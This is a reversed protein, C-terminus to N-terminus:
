LKTSASQYDQPTRGYVKKFCKIFYSPTNFGIQYAIESITADSAKLLPLALKVRQVRLFETASMKFIAKLKRHLQSRSMHMRKAFLVITFEPNTIEKDLVTKLRTLFETETSTSGLEPDINFDKSFHHQLQNRGEILKEVRLKLLKSNFPKTIYADVGTTLGSIENDAGVKATLLIIPIHSTLENHKLFNSLAIGDQVPMMVDSIILDPSHALALAVGSKGNNAEIIRYDDKFISSIFKRIDDEDEVILLLARDSPALTQHHNIKSEMEIDSVKIDQAAFASEHIPLSVTFQIKDAAITNVIIRGKALEVLEKVLALGVGVGESAQDDQYFRQFLQGIDKKSIDKNTNIISLVMQQHHENADVLITSGKPAYKIANTLLNSTIKEVIDTDYWASTLNNINQTITIKRKEAQYQFAAIIQKLLINLNNKSVELRLQGSDILSLDLMQNVLKLLRNANQKVLNLEHADDPQLNKKALQHEIPGSILTLPTRFEHSINTYLKTKFEDLKKLRETEAHELQLQTQMHWRWKFYVYIIYITAIILILYIAKALNTLYWPRLISFSYTAPVPNWVGDYNSSIVKFVYDNPPLNTYHATNTNGSSVWTSDHNVLQYKYQNRDPQSFHLGSFTFTLTNQTHSFRAQQEIPKEKNFIELKSIVTRPVIRNRTIDSPMFWNVGDLGGFYLTGDSAKYYAGTNFEFAQLGSYNGYVEVVAEGNILKFEFIGKNSSLWLSNADGPLIGYIVMNPLGNSTNYTNVMKNNSNYSKLGDGNTGIWIVQGDFYLSKIASSIPEIKQISDTETDLLFLGDNETGIWYETNQGKEITRINNSTLASNDKHYSKVVGRGLDFLLLGHERTCLWNQTQSHQYIKWITHQDLPKFNRMNGWRDMLQLGRGQHGIWLYDDDSFLSMIRDSKLESNKQTYTKYSDNNFNIATLGKGSTGLWLTQDSELTISRVVDVHVDIPTQANTILNFKKLHEDYYSLGAGDTGLWITGTFDEYLCLVDDYHLAYPDNKNAIFHQVENLDIDILYVGDGYTAVWLKNNKDILIDQINLISPLKQHDFKKFSTAKPAKYYLGNGYTGCWITDDKSNALASFNLGNDDVTIKHLQQNELTFIHNATALYLQNGTNLFDYIATNKIIDEFVKAIRNQQLNIQYLGDTYSGVLYNGQQDQIICSPSTITQFSQFTQLSDNFKELGNKLSIIWLNADADIYTKGLRSFTPRTVDEFQKNYITFSRGNYKNLGDQTAFWMYGLSDQVISVVSNQSLGQAVTLERFSIQKSVSTNEYGVDVHQQAFMVFPIFFLFGSKIFYRM